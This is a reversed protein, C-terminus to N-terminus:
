GLQLIEIASADGAPVLADYMSGLQEQSWSAFVGDGRYTRQGSDDVLTITGAGQECKVKMEWAGRVHELSVCQAKSDGAFLPLSSLSVVLMTIMARKM